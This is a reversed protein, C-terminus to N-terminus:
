QEDDTYKQVWDPIYSKKEYETEQLEYRDLEFPLKEITAQEKPSKYGTKKDMIQELLLRFPLLENPDIPTGHWNIHEKMFFNYADHIDQKITRVSTLGLLYDVSCDYAEAIATIVELRPSRNESEYAAITPASVKIKKGFQEMTMNNELRLKKLRAGFGHLEKIEIPDVENRSNMEM